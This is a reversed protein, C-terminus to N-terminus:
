LPATRPLEDWCGGALVKLTGAGLPISIFSGQGVGEGALGAAPGPVHGLTRGLNRVILPAHGVDCLPSGEAGGVNTLFM